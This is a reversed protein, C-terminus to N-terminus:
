PNCSFQVSSSQVGWALHQASIRENYKANSQVCLRYSFMYTAAFAWCSGCQGQNGPTDAVCHSWDDRLDYSAPAEWPTPVRGSM